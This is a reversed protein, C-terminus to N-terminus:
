FRRLPYNKLFPIDSVNRVMIQQSPEAVPFGAAGYGGAGFGGGHDMRLAGPGTPIGTAAAQDPGSYDAYLDTNFDRGGGHGHHGMGGGGMGGRFGGGM